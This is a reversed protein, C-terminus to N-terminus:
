TPQGAPHPEGWRLCAACWSLGGGFGVLVAHQGSRLRGGTVAEHLAIPISAAATNGYRDVNTMLRDEPVGLETICQSLMRLNAQHPVILDIDDLGLNAAAVVERIAAPVQRTVFQWVAKGEMKLKNQGAAIGDISCPRRSGGMPVIIKDFHEGASGSVSSSLWSPSATPALVVAGAGDGFFISAERQRLDLLRSYTDAGIVLVLGDNAQECLAFGALLAHVFGSCIGNLDFGGARAGLRHQVLSATAPILYDPSSTACIILRVEDVSAGARELAERAAEVALDSTAQGDAAWYRNRIGTHSEIWHDSTDVGHEVLSENTVLKEPLYAGTGIIGVGM